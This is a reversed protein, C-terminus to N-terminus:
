EVQQLPKLTYLGGYINILIGDPLKKRLKKILTRISAASYEKDNDEWINVFIDFSNLSKNVNLCLLHLLKTEYNSLLILTNNVFYEKTDLNYTSITNLHIINKTFSETKLLELAIDISQTLEKRKIPKVLYNLMQMSLAELLKEKESHATLIIIQTHKSIKRIEKSLELGSLFPMTIDTLVIHPSHTKYLSLAEEGNDAEYVTCNYRSKIYAIHNKRTTYEDEAYLLTFNKM